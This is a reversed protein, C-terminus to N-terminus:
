LSQTAEQPTGRIGDPWSGRAADRVNRAKPPDNRRQRHCDFWFNLLPLYHSRRAM